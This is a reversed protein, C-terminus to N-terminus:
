CSRYAPRLGNIVMFVGGLAGLLCVFAGILIRAFVRETFLGIKRSCFFRGSCKLEASSRESVSLRRGDHRGHGNGHRVDRAAATVTGDDSRYSGDLNEIKLLM